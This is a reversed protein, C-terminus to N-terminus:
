NILYNHFFLASLSNCFPDGRINTLVFGSLVIDLAVNKYKKKWKLSANNCNLSAINCNSFLM